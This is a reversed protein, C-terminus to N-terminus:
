SPLSIIQQSLSKWSIKFGLKTLLALLLKQDSILHSLADEVQSFPLESKEAASFIGTVQEKLQELFKESVIGFNAILTWNINKFSTQEKLYALVERLEKEYSTGFVKALEELTFFEKESSEIITKLKDEATDMISELHHASEDQTLQDLYNLINPIPFRKKDYVFLPFGIDSPFLLKSDVLLLMPFSPNLAYLEKYREVKKLVYDQTWFGVIELFYSSSRRILRFDPIIVRGDELVIIDPEREVDWGRMGNVRMYFQKEVESDFAESEQPQYSSPLEFKPLDKGQCSYQRNRGYFEYKIKLEFDLNEKVLFGYIYFFLISLQKGYKTSKGVLENPGILTCQIPSDTLQDPIIRKFEILTGFKKSLFFIKKILSGPVPSSFILKIEVSLRLLSDLLDYNYLSITSTSTPEQYMVLKRFLQHDAFLLEEITGSELEQSVAFDRLFTSRQAQPVFGSSNQSLFEYFRGRLEDSTVSPHIKQIRFSFFYSLLVDYLAMGVRPNKEFLDIIELRPVDLLSCDVAQKLLDIAKDIKENVNWNLFVPKGQQLPIHNTSIM